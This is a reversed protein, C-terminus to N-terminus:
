KETGLTKRAAMLAEWAEAHRTYVGHRWMETDYDLPEDPAAALEELVIRAVTDRLKRATLERRELVALLVLAAATNPITATNSM